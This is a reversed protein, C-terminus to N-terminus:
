WVTGADLVWNEVLSGITYLKGVEPEPKGITGGLYKTSEIRAGGSLSLNNALINGKVLGNTLNIDYNPLILSFEENVIGGGLTFTGIGNSYIGGQMGGGGSYLIDAKKIFFNANSYLNNTFNLSENGAYYINLKDPSAGQNIFTNGFTIKDKVYITLNGSGIINLYGNVLLSNVYLIKDSNGVDINFTLGGNTLSFKNIKLNDELILTKNNYKNWDGGDLNNNSILNSNSPYYKADEFTQTPFVLIEKYDNNILKDFNTPDYTIEIPSSSYGNVSVYKQTASALKAKVNNKIDYYAYSIKNRSYVSYSGVTSPPPPYSDLDVVIEQSVKRINTSNKDIKGESIIRYIIKNGLDEREIHIYAAPQKSFHEKFNTIDEYNFKVNDNLQEKLFFQFARPNNKNNKLENKYLREAISIAMDIDKILKQKTEVAGAEAIYYIAQDMRENTSTKLSNGSVTFISLSLISLLVITFLAIVLSYGQDNIILLRFLRKGM